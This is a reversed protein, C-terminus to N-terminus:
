WSITSPAQDGIFLGLTTLFPCSFTRSYLLKDENYSTVAILIDTPRGYSSVRLSWGNASTFDDPDVTAASYRM